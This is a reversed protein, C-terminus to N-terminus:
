GSVAVILQSAIVVATLHARMRLYSSSWIDSLVFRDIAYLLAYGNALLLARAIEPLILALWALLALFISASMLRSPCSPVEERLSLPWYIGAMFALIVASYVDFLLRSLEVQAIGTAIWLSLGVFPILGSYGYIKANSEVSALAM